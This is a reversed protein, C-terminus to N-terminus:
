TNGMRAASGLVAAILMLVGSALAYISPLRHRNSAPVRGPSSPWTQGRWRRRPPIWRLAGAYLLGFSLSAFGTALAWPELDEAAECTQITAITTYASTVLSTTGLLAALAGWSGNARWYDPAGLWFTEAGRVALLAGLIGSATMTALSLWTTVTMTSEGM